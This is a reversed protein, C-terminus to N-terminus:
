EDGVVKILQATQIELTGSYNQLYGYLVVTDGAAVPIEKIERSLGYRQAFEADAALGWVTISKEGDVFTFNCYKENTIEAVTAEIYYRAESIEKKTADLKSALLIADSADLPDDETGAHVAQATNEGVLEYTPEVGNVAVLRANQLELTVNGDKDVYHYVQAELLVIDSQSVPLGEVKNLASGYPYERDPTSLGYVLLLQEGAKLNFHCYTATPEDAIEGEIYFFDYTGIGAPLYAALALADAPSLPSEETGDGETEVIDLYSNFYYISAYYNDKLSIDVGDEKVELCVDVIIGGKYSDTNNPDLSVYYYTSAYKDVLTKSITASVMLVGDEFTTELNTLNDELVTEELYNEEAYIGNLFGFIVLDKVEITPNVLEENLTATFHITWSGDENVEHPHKTFSVADYPSISAQAVDPDKEISLAAFAAYKNNEGNSYLYYGKLIVSLGNLSSYDMGDKVASVIPTAGDVLINTYSGNISLVGKVMLPRIATGYINNLAEADILSFEPDSVDVTEDQEEYRCSSAFQNHGGYQNIMGRVIVVNGVSVDKEYDSGKYVLFYGTDDKGLFGDDYTCVVVLKAGYTMSSTQELTLAELEACSLPAKAILYIEVTESLEGCTVVFTFKVPTDEEPLYVVRFESSFLEENSSEWTVTVNDSEFTFVFGTSTALGDCKRLFDVVEDFEENAEPTYEEVSLVAFNAYRNDGASFVYYGKVVVEKDDFASYDKGDPVLSAVVTADEMEVNVYEGNLKLTGKFEVPRIANNNVIDDLGFADLAEFDPTYVIVDNGTKEYSAGAAFQVHGGYWSLFGKIIVEDGVKADYTFGSDIYFYIYDTDDKALFGKEGVFIVIAKVAYNTFIDLDEETLAQLEACTSPAKATIAITVSGSLEGKSVVAAFQVATDEEPLYLVKGESSILDANASTWTISFEDAETPLVLGSVTAFGDLARIQELIGELKEEDSSTDEVEEIATCIINVYKVDRGSIYLYYGEVTINKGDLDNVYILTALSGQANTGDVVLNNYSGSIALKGTVKVFEMVPVEAAVLTDLDEGSLLRAEPYTVAKEGVKEYAPSTLQVCGNHNDLKGVLEIEDGILLEQDRAADYVLIMGTEDQLLFSSNSIAIVVGKVKFEETLTGERVDAIDSLELPVQPNTSEVKGVKTAAFYIYKTEGSTVTYIYYGEVAVKAGNMDSYDGYPKVLSGIVNSGEFALNFYKNDSSISLVAEFSVYQIKALETDLAEYSDKDLVLPQPYEVNTEDAREIEPYNFQVCNQYQRTAGEVVIIAGPAYSYGSNKGVNITILGTEDQIVYIGDTEAVVTAQVKYKSGVEGALVEEITSLELTPVPADSEEISTCIINVYKTSSGSIYLYYGTVAVSKNVLGSVDMTTALSGQVNTGAVELNIYSGSVKLVGELKVFKMVTTSATVLSEMETSTLVFPEPYSVTKTGVKSYTPSTLQLCGNHDGLVGTLEVEDGVQLDKAYNKDYTLIMSTEDQLVVGTPGIAFVVGKVTYTTNASGNRVDIIPTFSNAQEKTFTGFANTVTGDGFTCVYMKGEEEVFYDGNDLYLVYELTRGTPDTVKVSSESVEVRMGDGVYVGQLDVPLHAVEKTDPDPNSQEKTFTGFTNTVTGDGFTCVVKRGKEEIFYSGDAVYLVYDLTQGTPDTVKVSSEFVEVRVGDGVYVGQLDAPLHAVEKTDTGPNSQEKTFTGFTNTVTGDGFTCVVKRGKEEIYYSGDAVYLVYDLTQGTPDTVKVSSEFVEVRVGDGVYVGQLAEPLHAVEKTDTGPNTQEKTFTGFDNTVTGDGFTCVVKRGEEEIFYDGDELYLVYNVTNGNPGIVKVSSESVEVRVGDDFYVGQLDEPVHAVVKTDTGPNTQEKTFTGFDNTVTGDGFTCVVKRGEEEIYYSGNEVYLVYELTKSSDTVKVSSESVEVRVGDGVYVGQLGEPLHAVVKTDTGANGSHAEEISTAIFYLYKTGASSTIIYIFYGSVSINKGNLSSYDEAPKVMSGNLRSGEITFNYYNGSITLTANFKVYKIDVNSENDLAEFSTKDLNIATPEVVDKHGVKTCNPKNFQIRGGYFSTKGDVLVEDGVAINSIMSEDTYCFIYGSDDKLLLGFLAKAVVVAQVKHQTGEASALVSQITEPGEPEKALVTLRLQYTKQTSGNALTCNLVVETDEDPRVIRGDNSIISPNGSIWVITVTGFKTPLTINDTIADKNLIQSQVNLYVEDLDVDGTVTGTGPDITVGGLSCGTTVLGLLLVLLLALIKKRM